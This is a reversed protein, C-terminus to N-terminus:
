FLVADGETGVVTLPEGLLLGPEWDLDMWICVLDDGARYALPPLARRQLPAINAARLVVPTSLYVDHGRAVLANKFRGCLQNTLEACWARAPSGPIPNSRDFASPGAALILAGRLEAGTFGLVGCLALAFPQEGGDLELELEVGYAGFLSTCADHLLRELQAEITM